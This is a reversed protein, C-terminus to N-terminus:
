AMLVKVTLFYMAILPFVHTKLISSSNCGCRASSIRMERKVSEDNFSGSIKFEQPLITLMHFAPYAPSDFVYYYKLDNDRVPPDYYYNRPLTIEDCSQYIDDIYEQCNMQCVDKVANSCGLCYLGAEELKEIKMICPGNSPTPKKYTYTWVETDTEKANISGLLLYAICLLFQVCRPKANM